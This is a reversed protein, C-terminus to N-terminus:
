SGINQPKAGWRRRQATVSITSFLDFIVAHTTKVRFPVINRLIPPCPILRSSPWSKFISSDSFVCIGNTWRSGSMVAKRRHHLTHPGHRKCGPEAETHTHTHSLHRHRVEVDGSGALATDSRFVVLAAICELVRTSYREKYISDPKSQTRRGSHLSSIVTDYWWQVSTTIDNKYDWSARFSSQNFHHHLLRLQSKKNGTTGTFM